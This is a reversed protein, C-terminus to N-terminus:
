LVSDTSKESSDFKKNMTSNILKLTYNLSVM